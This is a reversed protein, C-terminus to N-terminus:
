VCDPEIDPWKVLLTESKLILVFFFASCPPFAINTPTSCAHMCKALLDALFSVRSRMGLQCASQSLTLQISVCPVSWGSGSEVVNRTPVGSNILLIPIKDIKPTTKKREGLRPLQPPRASNRPARDKRCSRTRRCGREGNTASVFWIVKFPSRPNKKSELFPNKRYMVVVVYRSAIM